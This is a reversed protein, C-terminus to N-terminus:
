ANPRIVIEVRRNKARGSASDNSAVPQTEGRGVTRVRSFDVGGNTLVDGVVAARRESLDYNYEDSGTSDTHGVVIVTTDPYDNLNTALINLDSRLDARLTTSDVGFLLDQPMTVVLEEGTNQVDISDDLDRRLEEAQKDLQQGIVGGIAAGIGAGIVGKALKDSSSSSGILGGILGGVIAGTQTNQNPNSNSISGPDTCAGLTIVAAAAPLLLRNM